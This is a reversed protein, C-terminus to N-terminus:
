NWGSQGANGYPTQGYPTTGGAGWGGQGGGGGGAGGAYPTTYGQDQWSDGGGGGGGNMGNYEPSQPNYDDNGGLDDDAGDGETANLEHILAALKQQLAKIGNQVIADPDMQGTSEIDFYFRGPVADYDFM